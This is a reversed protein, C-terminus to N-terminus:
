WRRGGSRWRGAGSGCSRNSPPSDRPRRRRRGRGRGGPRSGCGPGRRRAGRRRGRCSRRVLDRFTGPEKAAQALSRAESKRNSGAHGNVGRRGFVAAADDVLREGLGQRPAIEGVGQRGNRRAGQRVHAVPELGDVAAQEVGHVAHAQVGLARGLLAGLDDALHHAGEVGVAVLRDVVGQDAESLLEGLAIRQDVALAVEAVDVAIAGRGHAVGLAAQGLSRRQQHVADVLGDDVEARGIVALFLLRDDNRRAEGIQEGVAGGADGDAHGGGDRGMVGHLQDVGAEDQQVIRVGRGLGQHLLHRARVERGAADDDFAGGGDM